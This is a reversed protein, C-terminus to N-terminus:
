VSPVTVRQSVRVLITETGTVYGDATRRFVVDVLVQSPWSATEDKRIQVERTTVPNVWQPDLDALVAGTNADVAQSHVTWGVAFYGDAYDVPITLIQGFTLGAKLDLTVQPM